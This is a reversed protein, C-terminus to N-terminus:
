AARWARRVVVHTPGARCPFAACCLLLSCSPRLTPHAARTSGCVVSCRCWVPTQSTASCHRGCPKAPTSRFRPGCAWVGCCGRCLCPFFSAPQLCRSPKARRSLQMWLPQWSRARTPSARACCHCTRRATHWPCPLRPETRWSSSTLCLCPPTSSTRTPPPALAPLVTGGRPMRPAWAVWRTLCLRHTRHAARLRCSTSHFPCWTTFARTSTM